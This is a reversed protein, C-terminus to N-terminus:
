FAAKVPKCPMKALRCCNRFANSPLPPPLLYEVGLQVADLWEQADDNKMSMAFICPLQHTVQAIEQLAEEGIFGNCQQQTLVMAPQFTSDSLQTRLQELTCCFPIDLQTAMQILHNDDIVAYLSVEHM